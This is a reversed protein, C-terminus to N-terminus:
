KWLTSQGSRQHLHCDETKELSTGSSDLQDSSGVHCAAYSTKLLGLPLSFDRVILLQDVADVLNDVFVMQYCVCLCENSQDCDDATLASVFMRVSPRASMSVSAVLDM